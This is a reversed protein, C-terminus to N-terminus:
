VKDYSYDQGPSPTHSSLSLPFLTGISVLTWLNLALAPSLRPLLNLGASFPVVQTPLVQLKDEGLSCM